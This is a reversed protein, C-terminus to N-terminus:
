VLLCEQADIHKIRMRGGRALVLQYGPGDEVPCITFTGAQFAGGHARTASHSAGTGLYSIYKAIPRNGHVKISAHLAAGQSLIEEKADRKGNHNADFYVEWGDEWHGLHSMSARSNGKIAYSRTLQVAEFLQLTATHVRNKQILSSFSPIAMASLIAAIAVSIILEILTFGTSQQM